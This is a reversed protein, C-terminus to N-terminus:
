ALAPLPLEWTGLSPAELLLPAPESLSLNYLLEDLCAELMTNGYSPADELAQQYDPVHRLFDQLGDHELEYTWDGYGLKQLYRANLEQEYQGRIPVAMMPVKLHVAEGMLSFGANGLLARATRLDEVFGTESFDRFRLNGREGTHETGYIRFEYPLRELADLFAQNNAKTQYVLIHEGPERQAQLIERRLIPAILTTKQKDVPAEFFSPILYHYAGPTKLLSGLKSALYPFCDDNTIETSHKLHSLAQINAISVLPLRHNLAYFYTWSDFDSFVVDPRYGEKKM